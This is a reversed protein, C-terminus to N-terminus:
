VLYASPTSRCIANTSGSAVIHNSPHIFCEVFWILHSALNSNVLNWCMIWYEHPTVDFGICLVCRNTKRPVAVTSQVDVHIEREREM